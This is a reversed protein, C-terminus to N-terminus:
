INCFYPKNYFYGPYNLKIKGENLLEVFRQKQGESLHEFYFKTQEIEDTVWNWQEYLPDYKGSHTQKFKEGGNNHIYVKYNKDTPDLSCNGAELRAMFIDANLSGCYKCSGDDPCHDMSISPNPCIPCNSNM